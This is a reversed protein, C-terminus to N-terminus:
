ERRQIAEPECLGLAAVADTCPGVRPPREIVGPGADARRPRPGAAPVAAAGESPDRPAAGPRGPGATTEGSSGALPVTAPSRPFGSTQPAPRSATVGSEPAPGAPQSDAGVRASVGPALSSAAPKASGAGPSPSVLVGADSPSGGDKVPGSAAPVDPAPRERYAYFAAVALVALVVGAGVVGAPRRHRVVRPAARTTSSPVALAPYSRPADALPTVTTRPRDDTTDLRLGTGDPRGTAAGSDSSGLLRHLEQLTAFLKADPDPGETGPSPQPTPETRAQATRGTSGAAGSGENALPRAASGAELMPAACQYCTSAGPDNVAGCRACPVLPLPAGCANCYKSDAPNVRQCFACPAPRMSPNAAPSGIM